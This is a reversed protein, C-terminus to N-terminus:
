GRPRCASSGILLRKVPRTKLDGWAPRSSLTEYLSELDSDLYAEIVENYSDRNRRGNTALSDAPDFDAGFITGPASFPNEALFGIKGEISPRAM